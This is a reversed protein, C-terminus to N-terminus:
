PLTILASANNLLMYYINKNITTQSAKDRDDVDFIVWGQEVMTLETWHFYLEAIDTTLRSIQKICSLDSMFLRSWSFPTAVTAGIALEVWYTNGFNYYPSPRIEETDEFGPDDNALEDDHIVKTAAWVEKGTLFSAGVKALLRGKM